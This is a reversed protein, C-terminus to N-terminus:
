KLEVELCENVSFCKTEKLVKYTNWEFELRESNVKLCQLEIELCELEVELCMFEVEICEM